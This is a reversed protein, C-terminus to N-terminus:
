YRNIFFRLTSTYGDPQSSGERLSYKWSLSTDRATMVPDRYYMIWPLNMRKGVFGESGQHKADKYFWDELLKCVGNSKYYLNMVCLNSICQCGENSVARMCKIACSMYLYNM